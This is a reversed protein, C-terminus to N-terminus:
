YSTYIIYLKPQKKNQSDSGNFIIRESSTLMKASSIYVGHNEIKGDVVKQVYDRMDLTYNKNADSYQGFVELSYLNDDTSSIKTAASIVDSPFFPDLSYYSVPLELQAYQIISNKPIDDITTFKVVARSKNAQLYFTEQGLLPNLIVSEVNKGSNDVEIHNFDACSSNILFDFTKSVGAQHYYITLKSLPDNLNFYFIGGEGSAQSTNNVRVNLGKFYTLFNENSAFTDPNLSAESMFMKAKNTDLYLRLQSEVTEEGIVINTTPDPTLVDKNPDMWNEIKTAKTQFSYYNSDVYIDDSLEFVEFKQPNLNGYYGKYEIGLVFSDIVITSLDGFDPNFGNLRFQTYFESKFTGFEPDNYSGLIAVSLNSSLISDEVYTYTELDFTDVADSNLFSDSNLGDKGVTTVEKKCSIIFFLLLSFVFFTNKKM